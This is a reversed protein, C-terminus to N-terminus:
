GRRDRLPSYRCLEVPRSLDRAVLGDLNRAITSPPRLSVFRPLGLRFDSVTVGEEPPCCHARSDRPFLLFRNHGQMGVTKRPSSQRAGRVRTSRVEDVETLHLDLRSGKVCRVSDCRLGAPRGGRGDPPAGKSKAVLRSQLSCSVRM